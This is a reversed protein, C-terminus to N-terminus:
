MGQCYMEAQASRWIEYGYASSSFHYTNCRQSRPNVRKSFFQRIFLLARLVILMLSVYKTHFKRTSYLKSPEFHLQCVYMTSSIHREIKCLTKWELRAKLDRPFVFMKGNRRGCGPVSCFKRCKSPGVVNKKFNSSKTSMKVMLSLRTLLLSYTLGSQSYM